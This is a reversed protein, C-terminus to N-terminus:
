INVHKVTQLIAHLFAELQKIGNAVVLPKSVSGDNEEKVLLIQKLFLDLLRRQGNAKWLISTVLVSNFCSLCFYM